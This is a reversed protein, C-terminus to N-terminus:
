PMEELMWGLVEDALAPDLLSREQDVSRDRLWNDEDVTSSWVWSAAWLVAGSGTEVLALRVSTWHLPWLCGIRTCPPGEVTECVLLLALPAERRSLSEREPGVACEEGGNSTARDLLGCEQLVLGWSDLHGIHRPHMLAEFRSLTREFARAEAPSEPELLDLEQGRQEQVLTRIRATWLERARREAEPDFSLGGHEEAFSVQRPQTGIRIRIPLLALREGSRVEEARLKPSAWLDRFADGSLCAGSMVALVVVVAPLM